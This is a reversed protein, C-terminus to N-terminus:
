SADGTIIRPAVVNSASRMASPDTCATMPSPPVCPVDFQVCIMCDRGYPNGFSMTEVTADPSVDAYTSMLSMVIINETLSM